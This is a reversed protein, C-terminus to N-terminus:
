ASNEVQLRQLDALECEIRAAEAWGDDIPVASLERRLARIRESIVDHFQSM